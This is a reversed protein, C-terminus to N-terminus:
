LVILADVAKVKDGLIIPNIDMEEPRIDLAARSVKLILDCLIDEKGELIRFCKLQKLMRLAEDRDIPPVRFAVDKLAETFVGGLGFMILHGFSADKVVGAMVEIEGKVMEQVLVGEIEDGARKTIRRYEDELEEEDKVGVSICGTRARHLIRDSIVKLVVPYGIKKAADKASEVDGVLEERPTPFGYDKLVKKAKYETIIKGDLLLKKSPRFKPVVPRKMTSYEAMKGLVYAAREPTPYAPIGFERSIDQSVQDSGIVTLIPKRYRDMLEKKFMGLAKDRWMRAERINIGGSRTKDFKARGRGSRIYGKTLDKLFRLFALPSTMAKAISLTESVVKRSSFIREAFMGMAIIADFANSEALTEIASFHVARKLSGVLDVPNGRSWFYPLTKDFKKKVNDPLPPLELGNVDAAESGVVGWGGGMTIIATRRSRPLPAKTFGLIVDLFEQITGVEIFGLQRFIDETIKGPVAHAGTHSLAARAGAQTKASRLVVVPKRIKLGAKFFREGDKIGEVYLAILKTLSDERLFELYDTISLDAENGSGVFRSFGVGRVEGMGMIQVGINGSQSVLAVSGRLPKLPSGMAYLSSSASYIGMTNPGVFRIGNEHAIKVVEEEFKKGEGGTEGFGSSIVVAYPVRKKGCSKLASLVDKAPITIVALDVNGEMEEISPVTKFGLVHEENPNVPYIKGRYGGRLINMMIVFGWKGPVNSAGIVAVSEPDFLKRMRLCYTKM